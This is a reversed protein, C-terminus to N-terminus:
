PTERAFIGMAAKVVEDVHLAIATVAPRTESERRIDRIASEIKSNCAKLAEKLATVDCVWDQAMVKRVTDNVADVRGRCAGLNAEGLSDGHERCLQMVFFIRGSCSALHDAIERKESPSMESM